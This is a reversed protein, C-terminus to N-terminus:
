TNSSTSQVPTSITATVSGEGDNTQSDTNRAYIAASKTVVRGDDALSNTGNTGAATQRNDCDCTPPATASLVPAVFLLVIRLTAGTM